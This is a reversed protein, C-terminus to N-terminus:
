APRTEESQGVLIRLPIIASALQGQHGPDKTVEGEIRCYHVGRLGLNQRYGRGSPTMMTPYLAREIGDILVNLMTAPIANETAGVKTYIWAECNFVILAPQDSGRYDHLESLEILYLAPMDQEALADTLRRAYTQFGQVLPAATRDAVAPLSLTVAPETMAITADAPVGDGAVPMGAMLGATSSVNTLEVDGATTDATFEVVLPPATLRAFLAQMIMERNM